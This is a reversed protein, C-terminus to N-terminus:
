SSEGLRNKRRRRFTSRYRRLNRPRAQGKNRVRIESPRVVAVHAAWDLNPIKRATVIRMTPSLIATIVDSLRCFAESLEHLNGAARRVVRRSRTFIERRNNCLYITRLNRKDVARRVISSCLAHLLRVSPLCANESSIRYRNRPPLEDKCLFPSTHTQLLNCNSARPLLSVSTQM